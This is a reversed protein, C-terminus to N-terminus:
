LCNLRQIPEPNPRDNSTRENQSQDTKSAKIKDQNREEIVPLNCTVCFMSKDKLRYIPDHCNPCAIHLMIAGKLLLEAAVKDSEDGSSM